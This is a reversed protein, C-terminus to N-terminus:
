LYRRVKKSYDAYAQGFVAKCFKEEGLIQIHFLIAAAVSILINIINPFAMACGIYLLDFGVFAPNRSFRYIGGTVLSTNQKNNFGARWNNKMTVIASIFFANGINAIVVGVVQLSIHTSNTGFLNPLIVSILQVLAGVFTIIKLCFEILVVSKPKNGKGLLNGRIGQKRLMSMKILYVGYFVCLTILFLIQFIHM